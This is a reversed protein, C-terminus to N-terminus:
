YNLAKLIYLLNFINSDKLIIDKNEKDIKNILYKLNLPLSADNNEKSYSENLNNIM